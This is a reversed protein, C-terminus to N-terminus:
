RDPESQSIDDAWEPLEPFYQQLPERQFHTRLVRVDSVYELFYNELHLKREVPRGPDPIPVDFGLLAVGHQDVGELLLGLFAEHRTKKKENVSVGVCWPSALRMIGRYRFEVVLSQDIADQLIKKVEDM